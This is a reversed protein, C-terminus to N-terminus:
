TPMKIVAALDIDFEGRADHLALHRRKEDDAGIALGFDDVVSGM